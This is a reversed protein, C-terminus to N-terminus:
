NVYFIQVCLLFSMLVQVFQLCKFIDYFDYKIKQM